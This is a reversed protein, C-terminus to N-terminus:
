GTEGFLAGLRTELKARIEEASLQEDEV